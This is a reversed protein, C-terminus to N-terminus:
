ELVVRDFSATAEFTMDVVETSQVVIVDMEVHAQKVHRIAKPQLLTFCSHVVEHPRM